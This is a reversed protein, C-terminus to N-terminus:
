RVLIIEMGHEEWRCFVFLAKLKVHGDRFILGVRHIPSVEAISNRFFFTFLNGGFKTAFSPM